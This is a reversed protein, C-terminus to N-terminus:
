CIKTKSKVSQHCPILILSIFWQEECIKYYMQKKTTLIYVLLKFM